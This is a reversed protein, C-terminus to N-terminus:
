LEDHFKWNWRFNIKLHEDYTLNYIPHFVIKNSTSFDDSTITNRWSGVINFRNNKMVVFKRYAYMEFMTHHTGHFTTLFFSFLDYSFSHAIRFSLLFYSCSLNLLHFRLDTILSVSVCKTPLIGLSQYSSSGM